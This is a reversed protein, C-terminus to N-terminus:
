VRQVNSIVHRSGRLQYIPAFIRFITRYNWAHQRNKTTQGCSAACIGMLPYQGDRDKDKGKDGDVVMM